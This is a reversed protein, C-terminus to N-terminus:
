IWTYENIIDVNMVLGSEKIFIILSSINKDYKNNIYWYIEKIHEYRDYLMNIFKKDNLYCIIMNLISM